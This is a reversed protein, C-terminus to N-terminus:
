RSNHAAGELNHHDPGADGAVYAGACGGLVFLTLVVMSAMALRRSM